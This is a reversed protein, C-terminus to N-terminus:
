NQERAANRKQALQARLDAVVGSPADLSELEAIYKEAETFDGANILAAALSQLAPGHRPDIDLAKRYERAASLPDPQADHFYTMGLSTHVYPDDPKLRAAKEFYSRAERMREPDGNVAMIYYSNGLRLLVDYNKPDAEHARKLIRAVDPLIATNEKKLAYIHLAQGATKQLAADDPSADARAVAERLQEDSLDPMWEGDAPPAEPQTAAPKSKEENQRAINARLGKLERRNAQDAYLFGAVFCLAGIAILLIIKKTNM